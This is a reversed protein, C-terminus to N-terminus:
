TRVLQQRSGSLSDDLLRALAGPRANSGRIGAARLTRRSVRHGTAVLHQAAAASATMQEKLLLETRHGAQAAAQHECEDEAHDTPTGDRGQESSRSDARQLHALAAGMGLVLVPFCSVATTVAWPARSAHSQALLHYAVQGAMGLVLSGIASWRAFRRTRASVATGTDLWARLAFAAYTEVGIPLTIATNLHLSNWIGPLPRVQGFGTLKGIGIWGSWVAVTAPLALILLPWSPVPRSAATSRSPSRDTDATTRTDGGTPDPEAARPRRPPPVLQVAEGAMLGSGTVQIDVPSVMTPATM